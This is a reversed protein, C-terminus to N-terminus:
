LDSTAPQHLPSRGRDGMQGGGFIVASEHKKMKQFNNNALSAPKNGVYPRGDETARKDAAL